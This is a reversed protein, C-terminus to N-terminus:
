QKSYELTGADDGFPGGANCDYGAALAFIALFYPKHAMRRCGNVRKGAARGDQGASARPAPRAGLSTQNIDFASSFGIVADDDAGAAM